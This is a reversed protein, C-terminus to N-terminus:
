RRAAALRRPNSITFRGFGVMGELLGISLEDLKVRISLNTDVSNVVHFQFNSIGIHHIEPSRHFGPGSGSYNLHYFLLTIGSLLLRM